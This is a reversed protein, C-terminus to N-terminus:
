SDPGSKMFYRAWRAHEPSFLARHTDMVEEDTMHAILDTALRPFSVDAEMECEKVFLNRERWAAEDIDRRKAKPQTCSYFWFLDRIIRKAAEQRSALVPYVKKRIVDRAANIREENEYSSSTGKAFHFGQECFQLRRSNDPFDTGVHRYKVALGWVAEREAEDLDDWEILKSRRADELDSNAFCIDDAQRVLFAEPTELDDTLSVPGSPLFCTFRTYKRPTHTLIGWATYHTIDSKPRSNDALLIRLAHVNHAFFERSTEDLWYERQIHDAAGESWRWTYPPNFHCADDEIRLVDLKRLDGVLAAGLLAEAEQRTLPDVGRIYTGPYRHVASEVFVWLAHDRRRVRESETNGPSPHVCPSSDFSRAYAPICKLIERVHYEYLCANLTEEGAHGFPTHGIDHGYAIAEVLDPNLGPHSPEKTGRAVSQSFQVVELSHMLRNKYLSDRQGIFVQTKRSLRVFNPNFIIQDRDIQFHTRGGPWNPENQNKTLLDPGKIRIVGKNRTAIENTPAGISADARAANDALRKEKKAVNTLPESM